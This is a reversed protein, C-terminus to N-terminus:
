ADSRTQVSRAQIPLLARFYPLTTRQSLSRGPQRVVITSLEPKPFAIFAPIGTETRQPPM